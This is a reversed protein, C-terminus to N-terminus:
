VKRPVPGSGCRWFSACDVDLPQESCVSYTLGRNVTLNIYACLTIATSVRQGMGLAGSQGEFGAGTKSGPPLPQQLFNIVLSM